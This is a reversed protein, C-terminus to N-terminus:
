NSDGCTCYANAIKGMKMLCARFFGHGTIFSVSLEHQGREEPNRSGDAKDSQGQILKLVEPRKRKGLTPKEKQVFRRERPLLHNPISSAVVLVAPKSIMRYASAIRLAARRQVTAMRIRYKEYQTADAWVEAGHLMISVSTRMLM